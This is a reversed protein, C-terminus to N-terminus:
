FLTKENEVFLTDNIEELPTGHVIGHAIIAERKHKPYLQAYGSQKLLEQTEELTAQLGICICVLRDRAPRRRGSFVQHIYVESIGSRRALEAKSISKQDYLRSLLETISSELFLDQNAHIYADLNPQDMLEQCLDGTSKKEM